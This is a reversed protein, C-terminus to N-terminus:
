VSCTRPKRGIGDEGSADRHIGENWPTVCNLPTGRGRLCVCMCVRLGNNAHDTNGNM